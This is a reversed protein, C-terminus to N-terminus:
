NSVKDAARRAREAEKKLRAVSDEADAVHRQLKDVKRLAGQYAQEAEGALKALVQAETAHEGLVTQVTSDDTLVAADNAAGRARSSM